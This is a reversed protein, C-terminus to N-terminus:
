LDALVILLCTLKRKDQNKGFIMMYDYQSGNTSATITITQSKYYELAMGTSINWYCEAYYLLKMLDDNPVMRMKSSASIHSFSNHTFEPISERHCDQNNAFLGCNSILCLGIFALIATRLTIYM